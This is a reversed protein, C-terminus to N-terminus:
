AGQNFEGASKVFLQFHTKDLEYRKARGTTRELQRVRLKPSNRPGRFEM